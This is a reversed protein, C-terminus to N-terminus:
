ITTWLCRKTPLRKWFLVVYCHFYEVFYRDYSRIDFLMHEEKRHSGFHRM